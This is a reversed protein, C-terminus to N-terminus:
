YGSGSGSGSGARGGAGANGASSARLTIARAYSAKADTLNEGTFKWQDITLYQPHKGGKACKRSYCVESGCCPCAVVLFHTLRAGQNTSLYRAWHGDLGFMAIPYGERPGSWAPEKDMYGQVRAAARSDQLEAKRQSRTTDESGATTGSTNSAFSVARSRGGGEGEGGKDRHRRRRAAGSTASLASPSAGRKIGTPSSRSSAGGGGAGGAAGSHLIVSPAQM